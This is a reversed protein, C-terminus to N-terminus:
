NICLDITLLLKCLVIYIFQCLDVISVSTGLLENIAQMIKQIRDFCVLSITEYTARATIITPGTVSFFPNYHFIITNCYILSFFLNSFIM